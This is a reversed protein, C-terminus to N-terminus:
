EKVCGLAKLDAELQDVLNETEKVIVARQSPGPYQGAGRQARQTFEALSRDFKSKAERVKSVEPGSPCLQVANTMLAETRLVARNVNFGTTGPDKTPHAPPIAFSLTLFALLVVMAAVAAGIGVTTTKKPSKKRKKAPM